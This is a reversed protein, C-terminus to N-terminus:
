QPRLRSLSDAVARRVDENEDTRAATLAAYAEGSSAGVAGLFRAADQRARPDRDKLAAIMVAIAERNAQETTIRAVACAASSRVGADEDQMSQRLAPLADKAAAGYGTLAVAADRRVEARAHSLLNVLAPVAPDPETGRIARLATAAALRVSPDEDRLAECLPSVAHKLRPQIGGLAEAAAKRVGAAPYHRLTETLTPIVEPAKPALLGLAKIALHHNPKSEPDQLYKLVQPVATPGIQAISETTDWEDELITLLKPLIDIADPGDIAALTAAAIGNGSKAWTRVAQAAAKAELGLPTIYMAADWRARLDGKELREIFLPLAARAAHADIRALAMAATWRFEADKDKLADTLLPAAGRAGPGIGGLADAAIVRLDPDRLAAALAAAAPAAGPGIRGLAEAASWRVARDRDHLADRL